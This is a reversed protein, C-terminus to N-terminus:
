GSVSWEKQLESVFVSLKVGNMKNEVAAKLFANQIRILRLTNAKAKNWGTIEKYDKM